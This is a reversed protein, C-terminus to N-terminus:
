GSLKRVEPPGTTAGTAQDRKAKTLSILLGAVGDADTLSRIADRTAENETRISALGERKEQIKEFHKLTDQKLSSMHRREAPDEISDTDCYAFGLLEQTVRAFFLARGAALASITLPHQDLTASLIGLFGATARNTPNYYAGLRRVYEHWEPSDKHYTGHPREPLPPLDLM